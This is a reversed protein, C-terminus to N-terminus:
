NFEYKDKPTNDNYKIILNGKQHLLHEEFSKKIDTVTNININNKTITYIYINDKFFNWCITKEILHSIFRIKDIKKIIIILNNIFVIDM